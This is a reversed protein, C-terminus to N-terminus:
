NIIAQCREELITSLHRVLIHLDEEFMKGSLENENYVKYMWELEVPWFPDSMIREMNVFYFPALEDYVSHFKPKEKLGLLVKWNESHTKKLQNM